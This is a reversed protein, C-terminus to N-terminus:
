KQMGIVAVMTQTKVPKDRRFSFYKESLCHTCEPSIEINEKKIGSALLKKNVLDKLDVFKETSGLRGAVDEGVEFHCKSIGPGIGALINEPLSGFDKIMKKIGEEVINKEIGRWGCHLLGVIQNKPDFLYLPLCDAVTLSLFLGSQNTLLGDVNKLIKGTHSDKVTSINNNHLSGTTVVLEPGIGIKNFYIKRNYFIEKNDFKGVLFGSSSMPGDKKESLKVILKYKSFIKFV